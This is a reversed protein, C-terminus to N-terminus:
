ACLMGGLDDIHGDLKARQRMHRRLVQVLM